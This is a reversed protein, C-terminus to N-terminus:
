KKWKGMGAFTELLKINAISAQIKRLESQKQKILATSREEAGSM